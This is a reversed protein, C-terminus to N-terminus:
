IMQTKNLSKTMDNLTEVDTLFRFEERGTRKRSPVNGITRLSAINPTTNRRARALKRNKSNNFTSIRALLPAGAPLNVAIIGLWLELHAQLTRLAAGYLWDTSEHPKVTTVVRWAMVGITIFGLSFMISVGIKKATPMQLRWVIPVPVFVIALDLFINCVVAALDFQTRSQCNTKSLEKDWIAWYPSCRTMFFAIFIPIGAAAFIILMWLLVRVVTKCQFLKLYFYYFSIKCLLTATSWSWYGSVIYKIQIEILPWPLVNSSAGLGNYIAWFTAGEFALLGATSFVVLIDDLQLNRRNVKFIVYLRMAVSALTLPTFVAMWIVLDRGQASLYSM